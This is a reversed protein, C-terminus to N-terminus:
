TERNKIFNIIFLLRRSTLENKFNLCDILSVLNLAHEYKKLVKKFNFVTM